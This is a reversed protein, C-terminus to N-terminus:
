VKYKKNDKCLIGFLAREFHERLEGLIFVHFAAGSQLGQKGPVHGHCNKSANVIHRFAVALNIMDAWADQQFMEAERSGCSPNENFKISPSFEFIQRSFEFEM